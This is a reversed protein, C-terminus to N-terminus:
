RFLRELREPSIEAPLYVTCEMLCREAHGGYEIRYRRMGRMPEPLAEPRMIVEEVLSVDLKRSTRTAM